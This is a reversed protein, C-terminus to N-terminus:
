LQRERLYSMSPLVWRTLVEYTHRVVKQLGRPQTGCPAHRPPPLNQPLTRTRAIREQRCKGPAKRVVEGPPVVTWTSFHSDVKSTTAAPSSRVITLGGEKFSVAAVVCSPSGSHGYPLLLRLAGPQLTFPGQAALEDRQLYGPHLPSEVQRNHCTLVTAALRAPIPLLPVPSVESKLGSGKVATRNAASAQREM